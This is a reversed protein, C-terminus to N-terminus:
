LPEFADRFHTLVKTYRCRIFLKFSVKELAYAGDWDHNDHWSKAFNTIENQIERIRIKMLEATEAGLDECQIEPENFICTVGAQWECNKPATKVEYGWIEGVGFFFYFGLGCLHTLTIILTPLTPFIGKM